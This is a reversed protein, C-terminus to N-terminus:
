EGARIRLVGLRLALLRVAEARLEQKIMREEESGGLVYQSDYIQTREVRVTAAVSTPEGGAQSRQATFNLDIYHNFERVQRVASYASVTKDEELKTITLVIVGPVWQTVRKAGSRELGRALAKMFVQSKDADNILVSLGQLPVQSLSDAARPKFGATTSCGQLALCVLCLLPFLWYGPVAVAILRAAGKCCVTRLDAPRPCVAKTQLM